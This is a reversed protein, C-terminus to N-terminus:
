VKEHETRAVETGDPLEVVQYDGFMSPAEKQMIRLIQVAVKRIEVDAWESARM